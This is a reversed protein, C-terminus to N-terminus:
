LVTLSLCAQSILCMLWGKASTLTSDPTSVRGGRRITTRGTKTHSCLTQASTALWWARCDCLSEHYSSKASTGICTARFGQTSAAHRYNRCDGRHAWLHGILFILIIFTILLMENTSKCGKTNCDRNGKKNNIFVYNLSMAWFDELHKQLLLVVILITWSIIQLLYQKM